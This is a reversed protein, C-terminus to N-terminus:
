NGQPLSPPLAAAQQMLDPRAEYVKQVILAALSLAETIPLHVGALELRMPQEVLPTLQYTASGARSESLKGTQQGMVVDDVYFTMVIQDRQARVLAGTTVYHRFDGARQYNLTITNKAAGPSRARKSTAM